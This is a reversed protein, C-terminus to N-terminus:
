EKMGQGFKVGDDDGGPNEDDGPGGPGMVVVVIEEEDADGIEEDGTEISQVHEAVVAHCDEVIDGAVVEAGLEPQHSAGEFGAGQQQRRAEDAAREGQCRDEGTVPQNRGQSEPRDEAGAVKREAEGRFRPQGEELDDGFVGDDGQQKGGQDVQDRAAFGEVAADVTQEEGRDQQGHGRLEAKGEVDAM